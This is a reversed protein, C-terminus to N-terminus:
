LERISRLLSITDDVAARGKESERNWSFEPASQLRTITADFWSDPLTTSHRVGLGNPWRKRFDDWWALEIVGPRMTALAEDRVDLLELVRPCLWAHVGTGSQSSEATVASTAADGIYTINRTKSDVARVPPEEAHDVLGAALGARFLIGHNLGGKLMESVFISMMRFSSSHAMVCDSARVYTIHSNRLYASAHRSGSVPDAPRALEHLEGLITRIKQDLRRAHARSASLKQALQEDEETLIEGQRIRRLVRLPIGATISGWGLVDIFATVQFADALDRYDSTM